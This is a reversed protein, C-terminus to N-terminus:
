KYIQYGTLMGFDFINPLMHRSIQIEVFIYNELPSLKLCNFWPGSTNLGLTPTSPSRGSVFIRKVHIHM